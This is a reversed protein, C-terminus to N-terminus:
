RSLLTEGDRAKGGDILSRVDALGDLQLASRGVVPIFNSTRLQVRSELCCAFLHYALRTRHPFASGGRQLSTRSSCQPRPCYASYRECRHLRVEGELRHPSDCSLLILFICFFAQTANLRKLWFTADQAPCKNFVHRISDIM